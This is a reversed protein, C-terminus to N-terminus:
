RKALIEKYYDVFGKVVDEFNTSKIIRNRDIVDYLSYEITLNNNKFDEYITRDNMNYHVSIVAGTKACRSNITPQVYLEDGGFNRRDVTPNVFSMKYKKLFQNFEEINKSLNKQADEMILALTEDRFNQEREEETIRSQEEIKFDNIAKDYKDFNEKQEIKDTEKKSFLKKFFNM